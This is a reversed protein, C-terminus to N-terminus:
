GTPTRGRSVEVGAWDLRGGLEVDPKRVRVVVRDVLGFGRLVETAITDALKELLKFSRAEVIERVTEFVRGYDVTRDLEDDQAAPALDLSLELDVEFRQPTRQEHEYWGHRGMFAMNQLVIRDAV